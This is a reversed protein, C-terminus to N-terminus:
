DSHMPAEPRATQSGGPLWGLWPRANSLDGESRLRRRERLLRPLWPLLPSSAACPPSSAASAPPESCRARRSRPSERCPARAAHVQGPHRAPQPRGAERQRRESAHLGGDLLRQRRALRGGRPRVRLTPRRDAGARQSRRGRLLRLLERRLRGPRRVARAAAPLRRRLRRLGRAARAGPGSRRGWGSEFARGDATLAQGASYLRAADPAPSSEGGRAPPHAAPRRRADSGRGARGAADRRLGARARHRREPRPDGDAAIAARVSTSRPPSASTAPCRSTRCARASAPLEVSGDSSGNDVM